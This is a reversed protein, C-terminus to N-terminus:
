PSEKPTARKGDDLQSFAYSCDTIAKKAFEMGKIYQKCELFAARSEPKQDNAFQVAAVNYSVTATKIQDQIISVLCEYLKVGAKQQIDNSM